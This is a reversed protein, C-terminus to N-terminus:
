REAAYAEAFPTGNSVTAVLRKVAAAGGKAAMWDAVRCAAKAYLQKTDLRGAERIWEFKGTPLKEDSRILCRDAARWM